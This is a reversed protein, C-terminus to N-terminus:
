FRFASGAWVTNIIGAREEFSLKRQGHLYGLTLAITKNIEYRAEVGGQYIMEHAGRFDDDPIGSTFTNREIDVGCKISVNDTVHVAMEAEVYHTFFSIDEGFEPQKRGEALGREYHYGIVFEIGPRIEWLLHTGLTWFNTDRQSFNENYSRIGYRGLFRVTLNELIKRELEATGFHTTVLERGIRNEGLRSERHDGLLLHPGYHYRVRILTEEPLTQTLQAGYTGHSFESHDTFVFGQARINVDLKGWSPQFSRRLFAVPEVVVDKGQRVVQVLPQTPDEQLSLRQSASFFSVDDTYFTKLEGGLKWEPGLLSSTVAGAPSGTLLFFTFLLRQWKRLQPKM